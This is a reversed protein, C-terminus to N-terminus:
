RVLKASSPSSLLANQLSFLLLFDLSPVRLPHELRARSCWREGALLPPLDGPTQLGLEQATPGAPKPGNKALSRWHAGKCHCPCSLSASPRRRALPMTSFACLLTFQAALSGESASGSARHAHPKIDHNGWAEPAPGCEAVHWGGGGGRRGSGVPRM